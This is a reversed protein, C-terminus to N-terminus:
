EYLSLDPATISVSATKSIKCTASGKVTVKKGDVKMEASYQYTYGKLAGSAEDIRYSASLDKYKVERVELNTAQIVKALQDYLENIKESSSEWPVTFSVTIVGKKERARYNEIEDKRFCLFLAQDDIKSVDVAEKYLRGDQNYYAYGDQYYVSFSSEESEKLTYKGSLVSLKGSEDRRFTTKASQVSDVDYKKLSTAEYHVKATNESLLEAENLANAKGLAQELSDFSYDSVKGEDACAVFSCAMLVALLFCLFKKM